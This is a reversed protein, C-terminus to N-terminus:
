FTFGDVQSEDFRGKHSMDCCFLQLISNNQRFLRKFYYLQERHVLTSVNYTDM